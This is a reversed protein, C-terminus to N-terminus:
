MEVQPRHVGAVAEQRRHDEVEQVVQAKQEMGQKKQRDWTRALRRGPHDGNLILERLSQYLQLQELLTAQGFEKRSLALGTAAQANQHRLRAQQGFVAVQREEGLM